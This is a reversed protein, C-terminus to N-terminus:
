QNASISQSVPGRPKAGVCWAGPLQPIFACIVEVFFVGFGFLCITGQSFCCFEALSLAAWPSATCQSGYNPIHEPLEASCVGQGVVGDLSPDTVSATFYRRARFSSETVHWGKSCLNLHKYTVIWVM